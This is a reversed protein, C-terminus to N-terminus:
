NFYASNFGRPADIGVLYYLTHWSHVEEKEVEYEKGITLLPRPDQGVGWKVQADSCGSCGNFKVKMKGGANIVLKM